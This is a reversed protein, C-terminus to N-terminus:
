TRSVPCTATLPLAASNDCCLSTCAAYRPRWRAARRSPTADDNPVQVLDYPEGVPATGASCDPGGDAAAGSGVVGWGWKGSGEEASAASVRRM